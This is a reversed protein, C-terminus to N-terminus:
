SQQEHETDKAFKQRTPTRFTRQRRCPSVNVQQGLQNSLSFSFSLIHVPVLILLFQLSTRFTLIPSSKCGTKSTRSKKYRQLKGFLSEPLTRTKREKVIYSTDIHSRCWVISQKSSESSTRSHKNTLHPTFFLTPSFPPVLWRMKPM